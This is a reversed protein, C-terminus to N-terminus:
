RNEGDGGHVCDGRPPFRTFFYFPPHTPFFLRWFPVDRGDEFVEIHCSRGLQAGGRVVAVGNEDRIGEEENM